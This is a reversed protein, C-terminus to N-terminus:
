ENAGGRELIGLVNEMNNYFLNSAKDLLKCVEEQSAYSTRDMTSKYANYNWNFIDTLYDLDKGSIMDPVNEYNLEM